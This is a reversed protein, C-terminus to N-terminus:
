DIRTVKIPDRSVASRTIGHHSGIHIEDKGGAPEFKFRQLLGVFFLFIEARAVGEGPCQRKGVSFPIVKEDKKFRGGDLFRDPDFRQPDSWTDEGQMVATLSAFLMHGTPIEYNGVKVPVTTM